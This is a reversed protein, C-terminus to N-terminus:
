GAGHAMKGDISRTRRSAAPAAQGQDREAAVVMAPDYRESQQLGVVVVRGWEIAPWEEALFAATALDSQERNLALGLKVRNPPGQRLRVSWRCRRRVVPLM